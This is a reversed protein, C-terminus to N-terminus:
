QKTPTNAVQWDYKSVMDPNREGGVENMPLANCIEDMDEQTLKVALSGINNHLNNIKTTGPIPIIDKGRHCVWAIALQSPTCGHRKALDALRTYLVKNKELNEPVFRPHQAELGQSGLKVKPIQNLNKEM